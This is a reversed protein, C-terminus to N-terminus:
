IGTILKLVTTGRLFPHLIKALLCMIIYFPPVSTKLTASATKKKKKVNKRIWPLCMENGTWLYVESFVKFSFGFKNGNRVCGDRLNLLLM